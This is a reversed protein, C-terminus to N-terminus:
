VKQITKSFERYNQEIIEQRKVYIKKHMTLLISGIMAVLLVVSALIFELCYYTYLVQGIAEINTLNQCLLYWETLRLPQFDLALPSNKFFDLSIWRPILESDIILFIEICFLLGLVGGVPLYMLKKEAIEEVKIDLMMVVFLFLTTIAGIYVIVLIMAFFDLGLLVLLGSANLFVMILFLVSHIPNKTQIVLTACILSISSFLYFLFNMTIKANKFDATSVAPM